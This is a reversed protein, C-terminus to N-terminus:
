AHRSEELVRVIEAILDAKYIPKSIYGNMGAEKCYDKDQPMAHATLAVIPINAYNLQSARIQKTAEIGGLNPMQLDMLILDFKENELSKIAEIGDIALSAKVGLKELLRMILKQNVPTDEAVLISLNMLSHEPIQSESTPNNVSEKVELEPSQDNLLILEFRFCSGVSETSRVQIEGGMMEILRKSITLGLGTGGYKRTTSTDAQTFSEFIQAQKQLPIGIGTDIVAVELQSFEPSIRQLTAFLTVGGEYPTFKFANNILNFIVQRIRLPDGILRGNHGQLNINSIFTIKKTVSQLQAIKIIEGFFDNLNFPESEISLKGAEIKSFDLIDNLIEMLTKSCSKVTALSERQDDDLNTELILDTIGVIGNMPTRIEHSMNALFESKSANAKEAIVKAYELEVQQNELQQTRERVKEEILENTSSLSAQTYAIEKLESLTKSGSYILFINEFLVWAAHEATRWPSAYLVGYVSLPFYVGRLLHDAATVITATILVKWDKYFALFALSGFIHFHSEIRGGTLHIILSSFLIQSISIIHRTLPAGPARKAMYLPGVCIAGGLFISIWIHPHISRYEGYWTWPSLVLAFVICAAWQILMLMCFLRDVKKHQSQIQFNFIEESKLKIEDELHKNLSNM